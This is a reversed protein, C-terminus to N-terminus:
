KDYGSGWVVLNNLWASVTKLSQSDSAVEISEEWHGRTSALRCNRWNNYTDVPVLFPIDVQYPSEKSFNDWGMGVHSYIMALDRCAMYLVGKHFVSEPASMLKDVAHRAVFIFNNFDARWNKYPAPKGITKILNTSDSSYILSSESYLHYAFLEGQSFIEALQKKTYCQAWVPALKNEGSEGVFLIDLDSLPSIEGRVVSGFAYIWM